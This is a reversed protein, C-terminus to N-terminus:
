RGTADLDAPEGNAMWEESATRVSAARVEREAQLWDDWDHGHEGGRQESLEYARREVDDDRIEDQMKTRREIRESRIIRV